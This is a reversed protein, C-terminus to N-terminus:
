KPVKKQERKAKEECLKLYFSDCEKLIYLAIDEEFACEELEKKLIKKKITSGYKTERRSRYYANLIQMNIHSLKPKLEWFQNTTDDM